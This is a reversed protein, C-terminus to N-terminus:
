PHKNENHKRIFNVFKRLMSLKTRATDYNDENLEIAPLEAPKDVDVTQTAQCIDDVNESEADKITPQEHNEDLEQLQQRRKNGKRVHRPSDDCSDVFVADRTSESNSLKYANLLGEEVEAAYLTGDITVLEIDTDEISDKWMSVTCPETFLKGVIDGRVSDEDIFFRENTVFVKIKGARVTQEVTRVNTYTPIVVELDEREAINICKCSAKYARMQSRCTLPKVVDEILEIPTAFLFKIKTGNAKRAVYIDQDEDYSEVYGLTISQPKPKPYNYLLCVHGVLDQCQLNELTSNPLKTYEFLEDNDIPTADDWVELGHSASNFHNVDSRYRTIVRLQANNDDSYNEVWCVKGVLDYNNYAIKRLKM